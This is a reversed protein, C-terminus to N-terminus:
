VETQRLEEAGDEKTDVEYARKTCYLEALEEGLETLFWRKDSHVTQIRLIGAVGLNQAAIARHKSSRFYTTPVGEFKHAGCVVQFVWIGVRNLEHFPPTRQGRVRELSLLFRSGHFDVRWSRSLMKGLTIFRREFLRDKEQDFLFKARYISYMPKSYRLVNMQWRQSLMSWVALSLEMARPSLKYRAPNRGMLHIFGAAELRAVEKEKLLKGLEILSRQKRWLYCLLLVVKTPMGLDTFLFPFDEVEKLNGTSLKNLLTRANEVGTLGRNRLACTLATHRPHPQHVRVCGEETM